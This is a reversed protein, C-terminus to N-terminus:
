DEERDAEPDDSIMGYWAESVHEWLQGFHMFYQIILWAKLLGVILLLTFLMTKNEVAVAVIFEALTMIALVGIVVWGVKLSEQITKHM